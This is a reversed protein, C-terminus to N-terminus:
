VNEGVGRLSEVQFSSLNRTGVFIAERNYRGLTM